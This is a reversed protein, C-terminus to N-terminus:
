TLHFTSNERLDALFTKVASLGAAAAAPAAAGVAAWWGPLDVVSDPVVFITAFVTIFTQWFTHFARWLLNKLDYNM